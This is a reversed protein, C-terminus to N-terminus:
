EYRVIFFDTTSNDYERDALYVAIDWDGGYWTSELAAVNVGAAAYEARVAARASTAERTSEIGSAYEIHYLMISELYHDPNSLTDM